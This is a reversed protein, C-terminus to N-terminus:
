GKVRNFRLASVFFNPLPKSCDRRTLDLYLGLKKLIPIRKTEVFEILAGDPDEVYSFHGAASGMDFTSGSDVTYPYGKTECLRKMASQNVIDFCLHIFGLDGWYRSEFIRRPSRGEVQVLEIESPGLLRSFPGMRSSAHRLLVRRVPHSGGPLGALDTFAGARDYVVTDYGLIDRYFAMSRDIDSVGVMCGATGGTLCQLSSFWTDSGVVQFLNGWPDKLFFVPQGAPDRELGTVLDVGKSKLLAFSKEVDASKIRSCYIGLDGLRIEFPCPEPTRSTFQWIEFGGGGRMNLALIAHRGHPVGGTYRTMLRAEAADEFVRVDMGFVNRYWAFAAKVDSVGIGIQQIGAILPRNEM